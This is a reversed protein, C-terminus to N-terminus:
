GRPAVGVTGYPLFMEQFARIFFADTMGAIFDVTLQAPKERRWEQIDETLFLYLVEVWNEKDRRGAFLGKDDVGNKQADAILMVIEDFMFGMAKHIQRFREKVKPSKYIAENNFDKLALLAKMKRDSMAICDGNSNAAIDGILAGMISRNDVGLVRKVVPPIQGKKVIRVGAMMADELDRGLYAVVDAFRVVCGELTAPQMAVTPNNLSAPQKKRDPSLRQDIEEGCHCAIGDRVAFTLNLGPHEKYMRELRDIVRLSHPEHEFRLGNEKALKGLCREGEHGFPAHGLDHGVSIAAVLENNLGLAKSITRSVSAVLLSHELRTCIHDNLPDIFVQTKHRLRRFARSHLIRTYDRDFQTRFEDPKQSYERSAAPLDTSKTAFKKLFKLELEEAQKRPCGATSAM